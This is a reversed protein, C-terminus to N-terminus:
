TKRPPTLIKKTRRVFINTPGETCSAILPHVRRPPKGDGRQVRSSEPAEYGLAHM